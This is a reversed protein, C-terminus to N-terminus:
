LSLFLTFIWCYPKTINNMEVPACYDMPLKFLVLSSASERIHDPSIITSNVLFLCFFLQNFFPIKLFTHENTLCKMFFFVVLAKEQSYTRAILTGAHLSM